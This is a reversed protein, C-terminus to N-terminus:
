ALQEGAYANGHVGRAAIGASVFTDRYHYELTNENRFLFIARM